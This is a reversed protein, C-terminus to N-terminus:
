MTNNYLLLIDQGLLLAIIVGTVIFPGFPIADQRKKIRTLILFASILGGTFISIFLALITMKIGLLLGIPVFIKVDGMGMATDSKYILLGILAVIFLFGSGIIMGVLPSWWEEGSIFALPRFINFVFAAIGTIIGAVVLEDPIIRYRLDIFFVIILVSSLLGAFVLEPSLGYKWLLMLLVGTTLITRIVGIMSLLSNISYKRSETESSSEVPALVFSIYDSFCGAALGLIIILISEWLM